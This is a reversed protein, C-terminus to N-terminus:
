ILVTHSRMNCRKKFLLGISLNTILYYDPFYRFQVYEKENIKVPMYDRCWIDRTGDIFAPKINYKVLIQELDRWFARYQDTKLLSSLYIRNTELDTIM